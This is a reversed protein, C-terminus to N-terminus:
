DRASDRGNRPTKCLSVPRVAIDPGNQKKPGACSTKPAACKTRYECWAAALAICERARPLAAIVIGKQADTLYNGLQGDLCAKMAQEGIREGIHAVCM